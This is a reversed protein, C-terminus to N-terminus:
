FLKNQKGDDPAPTNNQREMEKILFADYREMKARLFPHPNDTTFDSKYFIAKGALITPFPIVGENVKQRCLDVDGDCFMFAVEEIGWVSFFWTLAQEAFTDSPHFAPFESFTIKPEKYKKM